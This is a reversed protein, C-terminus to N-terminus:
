SGYDEYDALLSLASEPIRVELMALDIVHEPAATRPRPLIAAPLKRADSILSTLDDLPIEHTPM